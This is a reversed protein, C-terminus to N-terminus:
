IGCMAICSNAESYGPCYGDSNDPGCGDSGGVVRTLAAKPLTRVTEQGLILKKKNTKKNTKRMMTVM